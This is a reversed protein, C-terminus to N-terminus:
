PAGHTADTEGTRASATSARVNRGPRQPAKLACSCNPNAPFIPPVVILRANSAPDRVMEGAALRLGASGDSVPLCCGRAPDITLFKWASTAGRMNRDIAPAQVLRLKKSPPM